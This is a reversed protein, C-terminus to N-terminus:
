RKFARLSASVNLKNTVVASHLCLSLSQTKTNDKESMPSSRAKRGKTAFRKSPLLLFSLRSKELLKRVLSVQGDSYVVLIEVSTFNLM